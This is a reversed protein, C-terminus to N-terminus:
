RLYGAQDVDSLLKMCEEVCHDDSGILSWQPDTISEIKYQISHWAGAKM